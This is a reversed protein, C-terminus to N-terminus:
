SQDTDRYFAITLICNSGSIASILGGATVNIATPSYEPITNPSPFSVDTAVPIAATQGNVCVYFDANCAFLAVTAGTPGNFHQEVGALLVLVAVTDSQQRGPYTNSSRGINQM